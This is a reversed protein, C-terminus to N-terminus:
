REARRHGNLDIGLEGLVAADGVPRQLQSAARLNAAGTEQRAKDIEDRGALQRLRDRKGVRAADGVGEDAAVPIGIREIVDRMDPGLAM